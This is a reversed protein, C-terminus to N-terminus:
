SWRWSRPKTRATSSRTSRPSRSRAWRAARPSPRGDAPASRPLHHRRAGAHRRGASRAPRHRGHRLQRAGLERRRRRDGAGRRGRPEHGLRDVDAMTFARVGLERILASRARTSTACASSCWGPRTSRPTRSRSTSRCATCTARPRPSDAHQHRRPRRGLDARAGQRARAARRRDHGDRDLPRRGAGASLRGGARRGRRGRGAGRVGRQHDPLVEREPGGVSASEPVPVRLNGHDTVEIGLRELSEKLRAYRIASPGMDVGRRDAGLDM